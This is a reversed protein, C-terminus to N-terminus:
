GVSDIMDCLEFVLRYLVLAGLQRRVSLLLVRVHEYYWAFLNFKNYADIVFAYSGISGM